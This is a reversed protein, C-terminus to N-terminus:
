LGQHFLYWPIALVLFVVCLNCVLQQTPHSKPLVEVLERTAQVEPRGVTESSKTSEGVLPKVRPPTTPKGGPPTKSRWTLCSFGCEFRAKHPSTKAPTAVKNTPNLSPALELQTPLSEGMRRRIFTYFPSEPDAVVSLYEPTRTVSVAQRIQVAILYCLKRVALNVLWAPVPMKPDIVSIVQMLSHKTGAVEAPTIIVGSDFIDVAVDTRSGDPLKEPCNEQAYRSDLLVVVQQPADDSNMCDIGDVAFNCSRAKLPWPLNVRISFCMNLISAQGVFLSHSLGLGAFSPMWRNWLDVERLLALLDFMPADIEADLRIRVYGSAHGQYLCRIGDSDRQIEWGEDGALSQRLSVVRNYVQKLDNLKKRTNGDANDPIGKKELLELCKGAVIVKHESYLKLVHTLIDAAPKRELSKLNTHEMKAGALVELCTTVHV